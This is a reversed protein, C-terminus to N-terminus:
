NGLARRRRGFARAAAATRQMSIWADRAANRGPLREEHLLFDWNSALWQLIPLMYWHAADISEGQEVHRCLNHGNAWIEIAGWSISHETTAARGQDPDTLFAIKVAFRDRSGVMIERQRAM